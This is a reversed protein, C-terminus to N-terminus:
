LWGKNLIVTACRKAEALPQAQHNTKGIQDREILRGTSKLTQVGSVVRGEGAAQLEFVGTKCGATLAEYVMSVSDQTVWCYEALSLHKPLWDADTNEVPVIEIAHDIKQLLDLDSKPTRRSTTLTWRINPYQALLQEIQEILSGSDWLYHKSPGGLLMLGTAEQKTAPQMRNLVGVTAIVNEARANPKDHQPVIALDFWSIPLSPRMLVVTRARSTWGLILITLHTKRGAGIVLGYRHTRHFISSFALGILVFISLPKQYHVRIGSEQELLANVLGMSQNLHGPKGDSVICVDQVSAGRM